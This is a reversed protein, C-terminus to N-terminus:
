SAVFSSKERQLVTEKVEETAREEKPRTTAIRYASKKALLTRILTTQLEHGSKHLEFSGVIPYGGLAFDGIADLIKHRVFEDPFRLGEPNVVKEPDLLVANEVSGGLGLGRSQILEMESLFGFTRSPAIEKEYDMSETYVLHQKQIIPHPFDIFCEIRLEESPRICAYKEGDRVEVKEQVFLIKQVAKQEEIGVKRIMALFPASSGDLVPLEEANIHCALNTIGLAYLASLLHEVTAVQIHGNGLRTARMTTYVNKANAPVCNNTETDTRLFYIGTNVGSPHLELHVPKGTHLGIGDISILTKITKQYKM